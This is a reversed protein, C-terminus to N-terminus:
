IPAVFSLYFGTKNLSNLTYEVRISSDYSSIFDLGIGTSYILKNTLKSTNYQNNNVYGADAFLNIFLGYRFVNLSNNKNGWVRIENPKILAYKLNNRTYIYDKGDMNYLEFGRVLDNGYGLGKLMFYPQYGTNSKKIKTGIAYYFRNNIKVFKKLQLTAYLTNINENQLLTLGDKQLLLNVFFGRLPYSKYDRKDWKFEYSTTFFTNTNANNNSAYSPNLQLVTDTVNLYTYQVLFTHTVYLQKRYMYRVNATFERKVKSTNNAKFFTAKDNNNTALLQNNTAYRAKFAIGKRLKKDLNPRIYEMMFANNFGRKFAITYSDNYGAINKLVIGLGYNVRDWSPNKFWASANRDALEIIPSPLFIIREALLIVVTGKNFSQAYNIDVSSFLETNYLNNKSVKLLSDFLTPSYNVNLKFALEREILKNKTRKNGAIIIDNVLVNNTLQVSDVVAFCAITFCSLVVSLLFRL